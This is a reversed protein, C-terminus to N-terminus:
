QCKETYDPKHVYYGQQIEYMKQRFNKLIANRCTYSFFRKDPLAEGIDMTKGNIKTPWGAMYRLTSLVNGVEVFQGIVNPMGVDLAELQGLEEAHAEILDAFRHMVRERDAPPMNRWVPEHLAAHAAEVAQNIDAATGKPVQALVEGSSPDLVEITGNDKGIVWKGGILHKAEQDLFRRTDSTLKNLDNAMVNM